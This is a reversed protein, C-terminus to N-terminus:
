LKYGNLISNEQRSYFHGLFPCFADTLHSQIEDTTEEIGHHAPSIKGQCRLYIGQIYKLNPTTANYYKAGLLSESSHSLAGKERHPFAKEQFISSYIITESPLMLLYQISSLEAQM